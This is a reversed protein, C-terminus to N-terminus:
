DDPLIQVEGCEGKRVSEEIQMWDTVGVLRAKVRCSVQFMPSRLSITIRVTLRM